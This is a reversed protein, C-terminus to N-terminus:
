CISMTKCIRSDSCLKRNPALLNPVCKNYTFAATIRPSGRGYVWRQMFAPVEKRFGGVAGVGKVFETTSLM